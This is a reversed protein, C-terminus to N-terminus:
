KKNSIPLNQAQWEGLGGQLRMVDAYGLDRLLKGATGSHQGMKDVIIVKKDGHKKLEDHREKLSGLPIHISGKIHGTTYDKKDRVDLMVCADKNMMLVAQQPSVMAGAKKKDLFFLALLLAVFTSVLGIHNTAFELLREM